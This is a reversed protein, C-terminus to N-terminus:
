SALTASRSEAQKAKLYLACELRIKMLECGLDYPKLLDGNSMYASAHCGGSCYYKAWCKMCKPKNYIHARKFIDSIKKNMKNEEVHGIRFEEKGVFQHCPYLYGDPAVALYEYGAGCGSLRKILCPGGDTDINFHFFNIKIGNLENLKLIEGALKIYENRIYNLDSQLIAYDENDFAVVPEVSIECFGLSAMHLVDNVFDLNNRTYTGRIYYGAPPKRKVVRSINKIVQDYCGEGRYTRRMKDHVAKRGDLSLVLSINNDFLFREVEENLMVANTTLTFKINKNFQAAREYGYYVIEKVTKFNTLPEGGFFDVEINKRGISKKILFDIAKKGIDTSMVDRSHGLANEAFCYKCRLNCDHSVHLCLAKVVSNDFFSVVDSLAIDDTFLLGQEVLCSIEDIVEKVEGASYEGAYKSIIERESFKQYDDLIKWCPESVEHLAGSPVDLVLKTDNIEFKHIM